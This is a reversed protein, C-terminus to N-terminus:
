ECDSERRLQAISVGTIILSFLGIAVIPVIQFFHNVLTYGAAEKIPVGFIMLGFVGGAEWLGWYGPVSPLSIFFCLIVMVACMELFSVEVGPCGKAMVYHSLGAFIWVVLSLFLCLTLKRPDRLLQFGAAFNDLIRVLRSCWTQEVKHQAGKSLFFLLKPSFLVGKKIWERTKGVSVLVIALVMLVALEATAAAARDLMAKDLHYKGVTLELNPDIDVFAVVVAFFGLLVIVDLAREAGVTALVKSFSTGEKKCFVAPRALEGLRAPLICNLAFGIM